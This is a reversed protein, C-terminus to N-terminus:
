WNERARHSEELFTGGCALAQERSTWSKTKSRGRLFRFKRVMVVRIWKDKSTPILDLLTGRKM